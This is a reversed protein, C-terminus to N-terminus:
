NSVDLILLSIEKEAFHVVEFAIVLFFIVLYSFALFPFRFFFSVKDGMGGPLSYGCWKRALTHADAITTSASGLGAVHSAFFLLCERLLASANTPISSPM